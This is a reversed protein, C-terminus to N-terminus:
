QCDFHRVAEIHQNQCVAAACSALCPCDFETNGAGQHLEVGFQTTGQLFRTKQCAIRPLVLALLVALLASALPELEGLPLPNKETPPARTEIQAGFSHLRGYKANRLDRKPDRM